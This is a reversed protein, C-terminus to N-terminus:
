SSGTVAASIEGLAGAVYRAVAPLGAARDVGFLAIVGLLKSPIARLIAYFPLYYWEPVIHTPTQGPQGPHLQRFPRSLQPHLLRVLRLVPLVRRHLLADKVTAYPTFAVTDKETRRSSAPRTTKGSWTCRGSTCCWSAPLSSRCCTTCRSLLPQADSQRGCLRGVALDRDSRRRGPIASFLNTIVTAAWFSMQGWPLVYGMFGTVVMLLFLIVGLIWLM